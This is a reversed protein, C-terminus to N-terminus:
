CQWTPTAWHIIITDKLQLTYTNYLVRLYPKHRTVDQPKQKQKHHPECKSFKRENNEHVPKDNQDQTFHSALLNHIM